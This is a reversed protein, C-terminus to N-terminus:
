MGSSLFLMKFHVTFRVNQLFCMLREHVCEYVPLCMGLCLPMHQCVHMINTGTGYRWRDGSTRFHSMWVLQPLGCVLCYEAMYFLVDCFLVDTCLASPPSHYEAAPSFYLTVSHVVTQCPRSVSRHLPLSVSTCSCVHPHFLLPVWIM